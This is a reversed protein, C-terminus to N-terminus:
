SPADLRTKSGVTYPATFVSYTQGDEQDPLPFGFYYLTVEGERDIIANPNEEDYM